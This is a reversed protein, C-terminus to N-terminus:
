HNEVVEIIFLLFPYLEPVFGNKEECVKSFQLIVDVNSVPDLTPVDDPSSPVCFVTWALNRGQSSGKRLCDDKFRELTNRERCCCPTPHPTHPTPCLTYPTSHLTYPTPHLTQPVCGDEYVVEVKMGLGFGAADM